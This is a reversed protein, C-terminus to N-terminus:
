GLPHVNKVSGDAAVGWSQIANMHYFMGPPELPGRQDILQQHTPQTYGTEDTARSQLVAPQGEWIWPFRFRTQCIPLVPDQLAALSWTKGGDHSVEVRAIKGRGSWALGTVEYFGPGPLKMEGSPFTIVSKADMTFTFIRAKGTTTILDTYKSTEERTYYPKDSVELRRLWKISINGEWGPLFLRMPYGQEPRMAEGNQAFVVLADSLCKDLPASRTMVAADAGEALVWSAERKLGTQKLLTSLPVGTWESTSVLGHTRQVTPQTAKMYEAGTTGSCEMFYHRSVTPFRQLDALSYKIPRDVLGHIILRHKAPDITPIGAHHREYHLGSPTIIGYGNQMPVWSATKTPNVWRVEREFQSRSGYGGDVGMMRGPEKTPDQPVDYEAAGPPAKAQALRPLMATMGVAAVLGAGGFMQRRTTALAFMGRKCECDECTALQGAEDESIPQGLRGLAQEIARVRENELAREKTSERMPKEGSFARM